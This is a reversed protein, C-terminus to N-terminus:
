APKQNQTIRHYCWTCKDANGTDHNIFRVGYPCAQVCYACGICLEPDILEVGGPATYSAHVPCVQHCPADVCQNCLKPVFYAREVLDPDIAPIDSGHYGTEPVLDIQVRGDKFHVFREVWTRANGEPVNNEVRCATLCKGAGICRDTDVLFGYLVEGDAAEVGAAADAASELTLEDVESGLKEAVARAVPLVTLSISGLAITSAKSLFARRSATPDPQSCGCGGGGSGCSGGSSGCGGANNLINFLFSM